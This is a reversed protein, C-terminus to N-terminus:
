REPSRQQIEDFQQLLQKLEGIATLPLVIRHSPARVDHGSERDYGVVRYLNLKLVNRGFVFGAAGDAFSDDVPRPPPVM